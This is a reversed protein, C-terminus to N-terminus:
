LKISSVKNNLKDILGRNRLDKYIVNEQSFEGERKLGATRGKWFKVKLAMIKDHTEKDNGGKLLDKIYKIYFQVKDLVKPDDLVNVHKLHVPKSEWSDSMLSYVGQDSPLHEEVNHIYFELPYGAFELKRSETWSKKKEYLKDEDLGSIDCVIHCDIDSFKTYNYNACSGTFVIDKIRKQDVGSYKCFKAANDMLKERLEPKLKDGNWIKPNLKNHYKLTLQFKEFLTLLDV